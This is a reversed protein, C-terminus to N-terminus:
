KSRGAYRVRFERDAGFEYERVLNRIPERGLRGSSGVVVGPRQGGRLRATGAIKREINSKANRRIAHRLWPNGERAAAKNFESRLQKDARRYLDAALLVERSDITLAM